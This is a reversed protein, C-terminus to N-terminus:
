PKGILALFEGRVKEGHLFLGRMASTVIDGSTEVGRFKMCGHEGALVVGCGQAGAEKILADAVLEGLTEQKIPTTLQNEVVRALKSLGLVQQGPIYGVYARLEVPLLHHPCLAFVKHNRLIVMGATEGPFSAWNNDQPTLMEKYMKAVRKPTDKFDPDDLDVGMGKLILLAGQELQKMNIM